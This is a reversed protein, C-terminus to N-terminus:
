EFPKMDLQVGYMARTGDAKEFGGTIIAPCTTTQGTLRKAGLRRRFSRADDRSLHGVKMGDGYVAVASSDHENEEPVLQAVFEGDAYQTHLQSIARQYHSEGVVDFDFAGDNTWHMPGAATTKPQPAPDRHDAETPIPFKKDEARPRFMSFLVLAILGAVFLQPAQVLAFAALVFALILGILSVGRAARKPPSRRTM